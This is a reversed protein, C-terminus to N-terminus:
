SGENWRKLKNQEGTHCKFMRRTHNFTLSWSCCRTLWMIGEWAIRRQAQRRIVYFNFIVRLTKKRGHNKDIYYKFCYGWVPVTDKGWPCCLCFHHLVDSGIRFLKQKLPRRELCMVARGSRIIQIEKRPWQLREGSAILNSGRQLYILNDVHQNKQVVLDKAVVPWGTGRM